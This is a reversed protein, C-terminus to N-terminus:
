GNSASPIRHAARPEATHKLAELAPEAAGV